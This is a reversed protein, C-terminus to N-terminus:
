HEMVILPRLAVNETLDTLAQNVSNLGYRKSIMKSLLAHQGKFVQCLNPIDLEPDSGGGWSGQIKKGSILEFPDLRILENSPPHSAFILRGSKKNIISFGMEITQVRGASEICVDFGDAKIKFLSERIYKEEYKFANTVGIKKAFEVKSPSIDVITIDNLGKAKAALLASMGIGGLGLIVLSTNENIESDNIVMGAGTTIACGYLSAIDMPVNNPKHVLRNESVVTYNSFTTVRGSNIVGIPSDYKAGEAEIGEAKLWTLIVEDGPRVKTIGPGVDLVIGSGEHGLLHPVWLDEGRGGSVEMLQSRCVGSFLVQVLVQGHLLERSEISILRLPEGLKELVAANIKM